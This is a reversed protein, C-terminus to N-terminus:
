GKQEYSRLYDKVAIIKKANLNEVLNTCSFIEATGSSNM